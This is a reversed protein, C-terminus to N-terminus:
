HEIEPVDVKAFIFDASALALLYTRSPAADQCTWWFRPRDDAGSADPQRRTFPVVEARDVKTAKRKLVKHQWGSADLELVIEWMTQERLPLSSRFSFIWRPNGAIVALSHEDVAHRTLRWESHAPSHLVCEVLNSM